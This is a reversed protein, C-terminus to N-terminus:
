QYFMNQKLIKERLSIAFIYPFGAVGLGWATTTLQSAFLCSILIKLLYEAKFQKLFYLCSLFGILRTLLDILIYAKDIELFSYILNIPYFIGYIFHWPLEENM